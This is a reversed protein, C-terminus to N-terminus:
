HVSHHQARQRQSTLPPCIPPSETEAFSNFAEACASCSCVAGSRSFGCKSRHLVVECERCYEICCKPSGAAEACLGKEIEASAESILGDSM